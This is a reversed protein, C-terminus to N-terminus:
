ISCMFIHLARDLTRLQAPTGCRSAADEKAANYFGKFEEFSCLFRLWMLVSAVVPTRAIFHASPM